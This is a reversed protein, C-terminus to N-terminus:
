YAEIFKDYPMEIEYGQSNVYYWVWNKQYIHGSGCEVLLGNLREKTTNTTYGCNSIMLGNSKKAITHGHLKLVTEYADNTTVETNAKKFEDNCIFAQVAERTIKRM